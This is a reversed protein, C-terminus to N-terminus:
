VNSRLVILDRDEDILGSLRHPDSLNPFRLSNIRERMRNFICLIIIMYILLGHLSGLGM